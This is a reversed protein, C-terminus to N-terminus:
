ICAGSFKKNWNWCFKTLIGVLVSYKIGTSIDFHGVINKIQILFYNNYYLYRCGYTHIHICICMCVQICIIWNSPESGKKFVKLLTYQQMASSFYIYMYTHMNIHVYIFICLVRLPHIFLLAINIMMGRHAQLYSSNNLM